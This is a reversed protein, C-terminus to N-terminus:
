AQPNLSIMLKKEGIKSFTSHHLFLECLMTCDTLRKNGNKSQCRPTNFLAANESNNTVVYLFQRKCVKCSSAEEFQKSGGSISIHSLISSCFKIGAHVATMQFYSCYYKRSKLFNGEACVAHSHSIIWSTRCTLRWYKWCSVYLQGPQRRTWNCLRMASPMLSWSTGHICVLDWLRLSLSKVVLSSFISIKMHCPRVYM